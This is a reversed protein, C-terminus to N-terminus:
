IEIIKGNRGVNVVRTNGVLDEAGEAEHIHGCLLIDPQLKEITNRLGISGFDPTIKDVITGHPHVHSVMIKKKCDNIRYFNDKVLDLVDSEKWADLGVNAGGLGFFGVHYYKAYKSHLNKINYLESLFDGLALGDHNGPVFVIRKGKDKFPKLLNKSDINSTLDGCLVVLDVNEKEAREALKKALISDGHIDSAALIRLKKEMRKIIM